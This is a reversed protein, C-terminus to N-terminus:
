RTCNLAITGINISGADSQYPVSAAQSLQTCPNNVQRYTCYRWYLSQGSCQDGFPLWGAQTAVICLAVFFIDKKAKSLIIRAM